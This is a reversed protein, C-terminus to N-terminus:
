NPCINLIGWTRFSYQHNSCVLVSSLNKAFELINLNELRYYNMRVKDDECQKDLGELSCSSTLINLDEKHLTCYRISGILDFTDFMGLLNQGEFQQISFFPDQQLQM